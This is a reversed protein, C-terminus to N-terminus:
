GANPDMGRECTPFEARCQGNECFSRPCAATGDACVQCPAAIVACEEDSACPPPPAPRCFGPCDAGGNAPDCEDPADVCEYGPPCTEGSFGACKRAEEERQCVGECDAGGQSPDCEDGPRDVCTFGPPCPFGAIGGCFGPGPCAPFAPVCMGNLCQARPCSVTGDPCMSCSQIVACDDDADCPGPEPCRPFDVICQGERCEAKPCAVTNDPCVNCGQIMVCDDATQCAPPPAPVCIGGCDTGAANPECGDTHDYACQYGEPCTDEGGCRRPSNDPVCVGGCAAGTAPDCMADPFRICVYGATCDADSSCGPPGPCSPFVLNCRGHDCATKPCVEMGDACVSCPVRVPPCEDDSACEGGNVPQCTGSCATGTEPTCMDNPTYTCEFGPPCPEGTIGCGPPRMEPVCIGRCDAGGRDPVCDDAPDDTCQFGPPCTLGSIGECPQAESCPKFEVSCMGNLCHSRPCSLSGDACVTCPADLVPCSADDTCVGQAVPRCVGPCDAAPGAACDDAPNDECVEGDRCGVGNLGGCGPLEGGIVCIGTCAMGTDRDCNVTPDAVCHYGEPCTAGNADACILPLAPGPQDSPTPDPDPAPEPPAENDRSCDPKGCSTEGGALDGGGGGGGGGGSGSCGCLFVALGLVVAFRAVAHM